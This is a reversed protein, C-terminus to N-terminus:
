ELPRSLKEVNGNFRFPLKGKMCIKRNVSWVPSASRRRCKQGPRWLTRDYRTGRLSSDAACVRRLARSRHRREYLIILSHCDIMEIAQNVKRTIQFLSRLCRRVKAEQDNTVLPFQATCSCNSGELILIGSSSFFLDPTLSLPSASLM